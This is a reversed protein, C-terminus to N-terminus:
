KVQGEDTRFPVMPLGEKNFVNGILTNSFGYRVYVPNRISQNWVTIKDNDLKADAPLWDKQDGSIYFGTIKKGTYILGTPANSFSLVLKNKNTTISKFLPSRYEPIDKKYTDGLALNALRKGVERKDSPHINTVSDIQDTIVVMGTKDHNLVKTQQEQLLAGNFNNGYNFPAIQVYYFPFDKQWKNRWADIMTTLLTAYTGDSGVNAEGQYWLAGAISFQTIPAIMGNYNLGPKVPGWPVEKLKAAATKLVENDYINDAPTWTEAPTGGWSANILGVPVNLDQQLKKGFYYGVASFNKLSNSDCVLWQAKLDDQPYDSATRPVQFFRINKNYCTPLEAKIFRDGNAYGWEMNSQGSCLWVEGVLVDDLAIIAGGSSITLVYPGGALPTKIKTTWKGLNTITTTAAENNWSGTITVKQGNYGWGWITVSDNQQLVMGPAIVAPLRLQSFAVSAVFFTIVILCYSKIM